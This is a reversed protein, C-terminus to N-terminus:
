AHYTVPVIQACANGRFGNATIPVIQVAVKMGVNPANHFVELYQASLDTVGSPDLGNELLAIQVFRSQAPQTVGTSLPRTAFAVCPTGLPDAHVALVFNPSTAPAADGTLKLNTAVSRTTVLSFDNFQALFDPKQPAVTLIDSSLGSNLLTGNLSQFVMLGSVPKSAPSWVQSLAVFSLRENESLVSWSRAIFSLNATVQQQRPSPVRGSRRRLNSSWSLASM